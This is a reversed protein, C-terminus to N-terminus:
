QGKPKTPPETGYKKKWFKDATEKGYSAVAGWYGETANASPGGSAQQKAIDAPTAGAESQPEMTGEPTKEGRTTVLKDWREIYKDHAETLNDIKKQYNDIMAQLPVRQPDDPQMLSYFGKEINFINQEYRAIAQENRVMARHLGQAQLKLDPLGRIKSLQAERGKQLELREDARLQRDQYAQAAANVMPDNAYKEPVVGTQHAQGFAQQLDKDGEKKAKDKADVEALKNRLDEHYAPWAAEDDPMDPPKEGKDALNKRSQDIKYYLTRKAAEDKQQKEYQTRAKMNEAVAERQLQGQQAQFARQSQHERFQMALQLAGKPDTGMQSMIVGLMMSDKAEQTNMYQLFRNWKPHKTQAAWSYDPNNILDQDGWVGTPGSPEQQGTVDAGGMSPDQQSPDGMMGGFDGDQPGGQQGYPSQFPADWM